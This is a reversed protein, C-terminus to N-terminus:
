AAQAAAEAVKWALYVRAVTGIVTSTHGNANMEFMNGFDSDELLLRKFLEQKLAVPDVSGDERLLNQNNATLDVIHVAAVTELKEVFAAISPDDVGEMNASVLYRSPHMAGIQIKGAAVSVMLKQVANTILAPRLPDEFRPIIGGARLADQLASVIKGLSKGGSIPATDVTDRRQGAAEVFSSTFSPSFDNTSEPLFIGVGYGATDINMLTSYFREAERQIVEQAIESDFSINVLFHIADALEAIGQERPKASLNTVLDQAASMLTEGPLVVQPALAVAVRLESKGISPAQVKNKSKNESKIQLTLYGNSDVSADFQAYQRTIQEAILQLTEQKFQSVRAAAEQSKEELQATPKNLESLAYHVAFEFSLLRHLGSPSDKLRDYLFVAEKPLLRRNQDAWSIIERNWSEGRDISMKIINDEVLQNLVDQDIFGANLDRSHKWSSHGIGLMARLSAGGADQRDIWDPLLEALKISFSYQYPVLRGNTKQYIVFKEYRQGYNDRKLPWSDSFPSYGIMAYGGERVRPALDELDIKGAVNFIRLLDYQGVSKPEQRFDGEEIVVQSRFHQEKMHSELPREVIQFGRVSQGSLVEDAVAQLELRETEDMRGAHVSNMSDTTLAAVLQGQKDVLLTKFEHLNVSERLNYGVPEELVIERDAVLIELGTFHFRKKPFENEFAQIMESFVYPRMGLGIELVELEDRDAFHRRIFDVLHRDVIELRGRETRLSIVPEQPQRNESRIFVAYPVSFGNVYVDPPRQDDDVSVGIFGYQILADEEHSQLTHDEPAFILLGQREGDEGTRLKQVALRVIDANLRHTVIHDLSHDPVKQLERSLNLVDEPDLEYNERRDSSRVNNPFPLILGQGDVIMGEQVLGAYFQYTKSLSFGSDTDSASPADEAGPHTGSKAHPVEFSPPNRAALVPEVKRYSAAIGTTIRFDSRLEAKVPENLDLGNFSLDLLAFPPYDHDYDHAKIAAAISGDTDERLQRLYTELQFDPNNIKLYEAFVKFFGESNEDVTFELGEYGQSQFVKAIVRILEFGFDKPMKYGPSLPQISSRYLKLQQIKKDRVALKVILSLRGQFNIEYVGAPGKMQDLEAVREFNASQSKSYILGPQTPGRRTIVVRNIAPGMVSSEQVAAFLDNGSVPLSGADVAAAQNERVATKAYAALAEPQLIQMVRQGRENLVLELEDGATGQWIKTEIGNFVVQLINRGFTFQYGADGDKEIKEVKDAENIKQIYYSYLAYRLNLPDVDIIEGSPLYLFNAFDDVPNEANIRVDVADLGYQEFTFRSIAELVEKAKLLSQKEPQLVDVDSKLIQSLVNRITAQQGRLDEAIDAQAKKVAQLAAYAGLEQGEVYDRVVAWQGAFDGAEVQKVALHPVVPLGQGALADRLRNNMEVFLELHDRTVSANQLHFVKAAEGTATNRFLAGQSGHNVYEYQQGAIVITGVQTLAVGGQSTAVTQDDTAVLAQYSATKVGSVDQVPGDETAIEQQVEALLDRGSQVLATRLEVRRNGFLAEEFKSYGPVPNFDYPEFRPDNNLLDALSQLQDNTLFTKSLLRLDDLFKEKVREITKDMERLQEDDLDDERDEAIKVEYFRAIEDVAAPEGDTLLASVVNEAFLSEEPQEIADSDPEALVNIVQQIGRRQQAEAIEQIDPRYILLFTRSVLGPLPFLSIAIRYPADATPHINLLELIRDVSDVEDESGSETLDYFRIDQGGTGTGLDSTAILGLEVDSQAVTQRTKNIFAVLDESNSFSNGLEGFRFGELPPHLGQKLRDTRLEPRQLLPKIVAFEGQHDKWRETNLELSVSWDIYASSLVALPISYKTEITEGTFADQHTQVGFIGNARQQAAPDTMALIERRFADIYEPSLQEDGFRNLGLAAGSRPAFNILYRPVRNKIILERGVQKAEEVNNRAWSQIYQESEFISYEAQNVFGFRRILKLESASLSRYLDFYLSDPNISVSTYRLQKNQGTETSETHLDVFIIFDYFVDDQESEALKSVVQNLVEVREQDAMPMLDNEFLEFLKEYALRRLSPDLGSQDGPIFSALFTIQDAANLSQSLGQNIIQEAQSRDRIQIFRLMTRLEPRELKLEEVIADIEAKFQGLYQDLAEVNEPLEAGTKAGAQTVRRINWTIQAARRLHDLAVEAQEDERAQKARQVFTQLFAILVTAVIKEFQRRAGAGQKEMATRLDLRTLREFGFSYFSGASLDGTTFAGILGPDLFTAVSYLQLWSFDNLVNDRIFEGGPQGAASNVMDFFAIVARYDGAGYLNAMQIAYSISLDGTPQFGRDIVEQRAALIKRFGAQAAPAFPTTFGRPDSRMVEAIADNIKQAMRLNAEQASRLESQRNEPAYALVAYAVPRTEVVPLEQGNYSTIQFWGAEALLDLLEADLVGDKPVYIVVGNTKEDDGATILKQRALELFKFNLPKNTIIHDVSHDTRALLKAFEEEFPVPARYQGPPAPDAYLYGSQSDAILQRANLLDYVTWLDATAQESPTPTRSAGGPAVPLVVRTRSQDDGPLLHNWVRYVPSIRQVPTVRLEAKPKTFTLVDPTSVLGMVWLQQPVVQGPVVDLKWKESLAQLYKDWIPRFTERNANEPLVELILSGGPVIRQQINEWFQDQDYLAPVYTWVNKMRVTGFSEQSSAIDLVNANRVEIQSAKLITKAEDLYGVAFPSYDAFIYKRGSRINRFFTAAYIGSAFDIYPEDNLDQGPLTNNLSGNQDAAPIEDIALLRGMKESFEAALVDERERSIFAYFKQKMEGSIFNFQPSAYDFLYLTKDYDGAKNWQKMFDYAFEFFTYHRAELLPLLAEDVGQYIELVRQALVEDRTQDANRLESKLESQQLVAPPQEQNQRLEADAQRMESRNFNLFIAALSLNESRLAQHIKGIPDYKLIHAALDLAYFYLISDRSIMGTWSLSIVLAYKLFVMMAAFRDKQLMRAFFTTPSYSEILQAALVLTMTFGGWLFGIVSWELLVLAAARMLIRALKLRSTNAVVDPAQSLVEQAAERSLDFRDATKLVAPPGQAEELIQDVFANWAADNFPEPWQDQARLESKSLNIVLAVFRGTDPHDQGFHNQAIEILAPTPQQVSELGGELVLSKIQGVLAFPNKSWEGSEQTSRRIGQSLVSSFDAAQRQRIREEDSARSVAAEDTGDLVASKRQAWQAKLQETVKFGGNQRISQETLVIPNELIFEADGKKLGDEKVNGYKDKEDEKVTRGYDFYPTTWITAKKVIKKEHFKKQDASGLKQQQASRKAVSSRDLFIRPVYRSLEKFAELWLADLDYNSGNYESFVLVGDNTLVLVANSIPNGRSDYAVAFFANSELAHVAPMERRAGTYPNFCGSGNCRGVGAEEKLDKRIVITVEEDPRNDKIKRREELTKLERGITELQTLFREFVGDAEDESLKRVRRLHRIVQERAADPRVFEDIAREAEQSDTLDRGRVEGTWLGMEKLIDAFAEASQFARLEKQEVSLGARVFGSVEVGENWLSPDYGYDVVLEQQVRNNAERDKRGLGQADIEAAEAGSLFWRRVIRRLRTQFIEDDDFRHAASGVSFYLSVVVMASPEEIIWDPADQELRRAHSLLRKVERLTLFQDVSEAGQLFGKAFLWRIFENRAFNEAGELEIAQEIEKRSVKLLGAKAFYGIMEDNRVRVIEKILDKKSQRILAATQDRLQRWGAKTKSGLEGRDFSEFLENFEVPAGAADLNNVILAREAMLVAMKSKDTNKVDPDNLFRVFFGWLETNFQGSTVPDLANVAPVDKAHIIELVFRIGSLELGNNLLKDLIDKVRRYEVANNAWQNLDEPQVIGLLESREEVDTVQGFIKQLLNLYTEVFAIPVAGLVASLTEAQTPTLGAFFEFQESSIVHAVSYGASQLNQFFVEIEEDTAAVLRQLFGAQAFVFGKPNDTQIHWTAVLRSLTEPNLSLLYFLNDRRIDRLAKRPLGLLIDLTALLHENGMVQALEQIYKAMDMRERDHWRLYIEPFHRKLKKLFVDVGSSEIIGNLSEDMEIIKELASPGTSIIAIKPFWKVFPSELPTFKPERQKAEVRETEAKKLVTVLAHQLEHIVSLEDKAQRPSMFFLKWTRIFFEKVKWYSFRLKLVLLQYWQFNRDGAAIMQNLIAPNIIFQQFNFEQKGWGSPTIRKLYDLFPESRNIESLASGLRGSRIAYFLVEGAHPIRNFFNVVREDLNGIQLLEAHYGALEDWRSEGVLSKWQEEASRLEARSNHETEYKEVARSRRFFNREPIPRLRVDGLFFQDPNMEEGPFVPREGESHEFLIKRLASTDPQEIGQQKEALWQGFGRAFVNYFQADLDYYYAATHYALVQYFDNDEEVGPLVSLFVGHSGSYGALNELGGNYQFRGAEWDEKFREAAQYDGLDTLFSQITEGAEPVFDKLDAQDFTLSSRNIRNEIRRSRISYRVANIFNGVPRRFWGFFDSLGRYLGDYGAVFFAYRLYREVLVALRVLVFGKTDAWGRGIIAAKRFARIMEPTIELLKGYDVGPKRKISLQNVRDAGTLRTLDINQGAATLLAAKGIDGRRLIDGPFTGEGKEPQIFPNAIGKLANRQIESRLKKAQRSRKLRRLARLPFTFLNSIFRLFRTWQKQSKEEQEYAFRVIRQKFGEIDKFAQPELEQLARVLVQILRQMDGDIATIQLLSNLLGFAIVHAGAHDYFQERGGRILTFDSIVDRVASLVHTKQLLAPLDRLVDTQPLKEKLFDSLSQKYARMYERYENEVARVMERFRQREEDTTLKQGAFARTAPHAAFFQNFTQFPNQRLYEQALSGAAGKLRVDDLWEEYSIGMVRTKFVYDGLYAYVEHISSDASPSIRNLPLHAGEHALTGYVRRTSHESVWEDEALGSINIHIFDEAAGSQDMMGAESVYPRVHVDAILSDKLEVPLNLEDFVFGAIERTTESIREGALRQEDARKDVDGQLLRSLQQLVAPDIEQARMESKKVRRDTEGGITKNLQRRGEEEVVWVKGIALMLEPLSTAVGLALGILTGVSPFMKQLNSLAFVTADASFYLATFGTIAFVTLVLVQVHKPAKPKEGDSAEEEIRLGLNQLEQFVEIGEFRDPLAQKKQYYANLEEQYKDRRDKLKDFELIHEEEVPNREPNNEDEMMEIEMDIKSLVGEILVDRFLPLRSLFDTFRNSSLAINPLLANVLPLVIGTAILGLVVLFNLSGTALVAISLLSVATLSTVAGLFDAATLSPLYDDIESKDGTTLFAWLLGGAAAAALFGFALIGPVSFLTAAVFVAPTSMTAVFAARMLKQTRAQNSSVKQHAYGVINPLVGAITQTMALYSVAAMEPSFGVTIGTLGTGILVAVGLLGSNFGNSGIAIGKSNDVAQTVGEKLSEIDALEVGKQRAARKLSRVIFFLYPVVIAIIVPNFLSSGAIGLYALAINGAKVSAIAAFLEPLSSGLSEVATVVGDPFGLRKIMDSLAGLNDAIYLVWLISPIGIFFTSVLPNFSFLFPLFASIRLIGKVKATAGEIHDKVGLPEESKEAREGFFDKFLAQVIGEHFIMELAHWLTFESESFEAEDAFIKQRGDADERMESKRNDSRMIQDLNQAFRNWGGAAQRMETRVNRSVFVGTEPDTSRLYLKGDRIRLNANAHEDSIAIGGGSILGAKPLRALKAKPAEYSNNAKFKLIWLGQGKEYGVVQYFANGIRLFDGFVLEVEGERGARLPYLTYDLAKRVIRKAAKARIEWDRQLHALNPREAAAPLLSQRIPLAEGSLFVHAAEVAEAFEDDNVQSRLYIGIVDTWIEGDLLNIEQGRERLQRIAEPIMVPEQQPYESGTSGNLQNLGFSVMQLITWPNGPFNGQVYRQIGLLVDGYKKILSQIRNEENRKKRWIREREFTKQYYGLGKVRDEYRISQSLDSRAREIKTIFSKLEADSMQSLYLLKSTLVLHETETLSEQFRQWDREFVDRREVVSSVDGSSDDGADSSFDQLSVVAGGGFHLTMEALLQDYSEDDLTGNRSLIEDVMALARGSMGLGRGGSHQLIQLVALVQERGIDRALAELEQIVVNRLEEPISRLEAKSVAPLTKDYLTQADIVVRYYTRQEGDEAMVTIEGVHQFGLYGAGKLNIEEVDAFIRKDQLTEDQLVKAAVEHLLKQIIKEKGNRYQKKVSVNSIYPTYPAEPPDFGIHYNTEFKGWIPEVLIFGRMEGDAQYTASIKKWDRVIADTFAASSYTDVGLDRSNETSITVVEKQIKRNWLYINHLNPHTRGTQFLLNKVFVEVDRLYLRLWRILTSIASVRIEGRQKTAFDTLTQIARARRVSARNQWSRKLHQLFARPSSFAFILGATVFGTFIINIAANALGGAGGWQPMLINAMLAVWLIIAGFAAYVINNEFKREADTDFQYPVYADLTDDMVKILEAYDHPKLRNRKIEYATLDDPLYILIDDNALIQFPREYGLFKELAQQKVKGLKWGEKTYLESDLPEEKEKGLPAAKRRMETKPSIEQIKPVPQSKESSKLDAIRIGKGKYDAAPRSQDPSDVPRLRREPSLTFRNFRAGSFQGGYTLASGLSAPRFLEFVNQQTLKNQQNLEKLGAIFRDVNALWENKLRDDSAKETSAEDLFHTYEAAEAIRGEESLRRIVNDRWAKLIYGAHDGAESLLRDRTGRVFAEYLNMSGDKVSLYDKWSVGGQMQDMYHNEEPLNKVKPMLLVYSVNREKLYRIIGEAHFGGAVLLASDTKNKVDGKRQQDMRSMLKEFLVRDRQEANEYFALAPQFNDFVDRDDIAVGEQKIRNWDAHDIKLRALREYLAFQETLRDLEREGTKSFLSEKIQHIYDELERFFRTGEIEALSRQNRVSDSFSESVHINAGIKQAAENLYASFEQVSLVSTQFAQYKANLTKRTEDKLDGKPMMELQRKLVVATRKVEQELRLDRQQGGAGQSLILALESGEPPAQFGALEKLLSMLDIKEQRFQQIIHDAKLLDPSYIQTKRSELAKNWSELKSVIEPMKEMAHLFYVLGKQYTSWDEVGYYPTQVPNFLASATTATLEGAALYQKLVKKLIKEDPFSKFLTVDMQETPAAEIAIFDLGANKQFYDILRQISKQAEPIAHADQVLIVARNGSGQFVEEIKGAKEPIQLKFIDSPFQGVNKSEVQGAIVPASQAWLFTHNSLFFCVALVTATIKRFHLPRM